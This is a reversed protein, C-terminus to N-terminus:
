ISSSRNPNSDGITKWQSCVSLLSENERTNLLSEAPELGLFQEELPQYKVKIPILWENPEISLNGDKITIKKGLAMLIDKKLRTDSDKFVERLNTIFNFAKETLELWRDARSDIQDLEEKIKVKDEIFNNRKIEYEKDTIQDNLKMDILKNINDQIDEYTRQRTKQIKERDTVEKKHEERLVELAWDRFEPIITYEKLKNDIQVELRDERISNRQTCIVDKKKRTCHYYIYNKIKNTKRILKTKVEATYLCGCEACKIFGTYTFNHRKIKQKINRGLLEQVRNFEESTVMPKHKGEYKIGDNVIVGKYFSNIFIKYLGGRSIKKGGSRKLKRTRLGWKDNVIKLIKPPTYNGSLMLDWIKRLLDFREPDITIIKKERDNLYGIPARNPSWGQKLKNIMGRKVDKSLDLIFQNAMGSDVSFLLVNDGPLYNRDITKISKIINSQLLWQIRGTDIPNRTLRNLQWCLIGQAEGNEIRKIMDEFVPRDGPNKASKSEKFIKIILLNFNKAFEKLRNIQDDISQVQRDENESSKRAYLFYKIDSEKNDM